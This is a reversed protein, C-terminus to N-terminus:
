MKNKAEEKVPPSFNQFLQSIKWVGFLLKLAFYCDDVNATIGPLQEMLSFILVSLKLGFYIFKEMVVPEGPVAMLVTHLDEM